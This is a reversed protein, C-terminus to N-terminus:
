ELSRVLSFAEAYNFGSLSGWRRANAEISIISRPHPFKRIENKYAKLAKIKSQLEKTIDVFINPSFQAPFFWETSSIVEFSIVKKVHYNKKPRTATLTAQFLATHDVNVDYQPTSYVISPKYEDISNEITKTVHLNSVTDMENDPFDFFEIKDIGLIKAANKADRQLDKVHTDMDNLFKTTITKNSSDNSFPRRALIGTSLFLIKIDHGSKSLKKITGGMGMVEDDPHAAVILIKM